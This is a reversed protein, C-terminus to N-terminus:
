RWGLVEGIAQVIEDRWRFSTARSVKLEQAIGEWSRTQPKTWYKLRILKKRDDDCINYVHEVASAIRELEQLQKDAMMQSVVSGTPDSPLNSRGGVLEESPSDHLIADRRNKIRKLTDHYDYLEAEIHQVTGRRLKEPKATM